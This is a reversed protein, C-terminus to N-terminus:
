LVGGRIATVLMMFLFLLALDANGAVAAVVMLALFLAAIWKM